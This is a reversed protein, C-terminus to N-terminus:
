RRRSESRRLTRPLKPVGNPSCTGSTTPTMAETMSWITCSPPEVVRSRGIAQAFDGKHWCRLPAGQHAHCRNGSRRVHRQPRDSGRADAAFVRVAGATSAITSRRTPGLSPCVTWGCAGCKLMYVIGSIVRRDDVRHVGKRGRPLIPEIRAWEDDTLWQVRKSM